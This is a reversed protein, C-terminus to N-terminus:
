LFFVSSHRKCSFFIYVGIGEVTTKDVGKHNKIERLYVDLFDVVQEDSYESKHEEYVPNIIKQHIETMNIRLFKVDFFDGMLFKQFPFFNPYKTDSFLELNEKFREIAKTLRVDKYDM